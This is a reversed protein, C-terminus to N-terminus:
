DVPASPAPKALLKLIMVAGNRVITVAGTRMMMKLLLHIKFHRDERLLVEKMSIMAAARMKVRRTAIMVAQM